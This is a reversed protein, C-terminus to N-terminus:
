ISDLDTLLIKSLDCEVIQFIYQQSLSVYIGCSETVVLLDLARLANDINLLFVM